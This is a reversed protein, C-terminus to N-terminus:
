QSSIQPMVQYTNSPTALKMHVVVLEIVNQHQIHVEIQQAVKIIQADM